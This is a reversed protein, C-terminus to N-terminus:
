PQAFLSSHFPVRQDEEAAIQLYKWIEVTIFWTAGRENWVTITDGVSSEMLGSLLYIKLLLPCYQDIVSLLSHIRIGCMGAHTHTHTRM